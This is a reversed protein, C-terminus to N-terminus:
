VDWTSNNNPYGYRSLTNDPHQIEDVFVRGGATIGGDASIGAVHITATPDIGVTIGGTVLVGLNVLDQCVGAVGATSPVKDWAYGNFSWSLEGVTHTNGATQLSAKPFAM